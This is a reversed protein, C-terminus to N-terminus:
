DCGVLEPLAVCLRQLEGTPISQSAWEVSEADNRANRFDLVAQHAADREDIAVRTSERELRLDEQLTAERLVFVSVAAKYGEEAVRLKDREGVLLKYHAGFALLAMVAVIAIITKPRKTSFAALKLILGLM